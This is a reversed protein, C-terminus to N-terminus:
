FTAYGGTGNGTTVWDEIAPAFNITDGAPDIEIIYTIYKGMEWAVVSTFDSFSKTITKEPQVETLGNPNTVTVRYSITIKQANPDLIQPLVYYESAFGNEGDQVLVGKKDADSILIQGESPTWTKEVNDGGSIDWVQYDGSKKWTLTTSTTGNYEPVRLTVYGKNYIGSIKLYNLKISWKTIATPSSASNDLRQARARFALKALAHHFLTPVGTFGYHSTNSKQKVAKDSYLLDVPNNADLTFTQYSLESLNDNLRPVANSLTNAEYSEGDKYHEYPYYSVFDLHGEHPWFYQEGNPSWYPTTANKYSIEVNDMFVSHGVVTPKEQFAYTGFTWTTPFAITARSSPKYKGVEFTVPQPNEEPSLVNENDNVCSTLSTGVVTAFLLFKKM